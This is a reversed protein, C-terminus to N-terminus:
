DEGILNEDQFFIVWCIRMWDLRITHANEAVGIFTQLFVVWMWHIGRAAWVL